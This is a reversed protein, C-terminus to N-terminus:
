FPHFRAHAFYFKLDGVSTATTLCSLTTATGASGSVEKVLSIVPTATGVQWEFFWVHSHSTLRRKTMKLSFPKDNDTFDGSDFVIGAGLGAIDGFAFNRYKIRKTNANAATRGMIEYQIGKGVAWGFDNLNLSTLATDTGTSCSTETSINDTTIEVPYWATSDYPNVFVGHTSKILGSVALADTNAPTGSARWTSGIRVTGPQAVTPGDVVLASLRGEDSGQWGPSTVHAPNDTVRHTVIKRTFSFQYTLAASGNTATAAASLVYTTGNTISAITTGEPIGTGTVTYGAALTATSSVTVNTSSSTMSGTSPPSGTVPAGGTGSPEIWFHTKDSAIKTSIDAHYFLLSGKGVATIRLYDGDVEYVIKQRVGTPWPQQVNASWPFRLNTFTANLCTLATGPYISADSIGFSDMSIHVVGGPTIGGGDTIMQSSNVFSINLGFDQTGLAYANTAVPTIDVALTMKGNASNASGGMYFLSAGNTPTLGQNATLVTPATGSAVSIRWPIGVIPTTVTHTIDSGNSWRASDEFNELFGTTNLLRNNIDAQLVTDANTRLTAEAAVAAALQTSNTLTPEQSYSVLSTALLALTILRKTNM